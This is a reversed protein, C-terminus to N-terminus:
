PVIIRSRNGKRPTVRYKESLPSKYFKLWANRRETADFSKTEPFMAQIFPYDFEPIQLMTRGFGGAAGFDRPAPGTGERAKRNFDLIARRDANGTKSKFEPIGLEKAQHIDKLEELEM